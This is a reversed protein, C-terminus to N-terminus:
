GLAEHEGSFQQSYYSWQCTDPKEWGCCISDTGLGERKHPNLMKSICSDPTMDHGTWLLAPGHCFLLGGCRAEGM